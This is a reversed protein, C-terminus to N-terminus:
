KENLTITGRVHKPIYPCHRCGNGCCFGRKKHFEETMVKRGNDMYFDSPLLQKKEGQSNKKDQEM